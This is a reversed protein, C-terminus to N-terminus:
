IEIYPLLAQYLLELDSLSTKKGLSIRIFRNAEDVTKGIATITTAPIQQGIHCASGVSIALQQRNCELLLWQGQYKSSTMGIISPLQNTGEIQIANNHPSIMRIWNTRLMETKKYDEKMEKVSHAAATIFAAIGPINITGPRFGKQHTAFKYSSKWHISPDIYVAGVGQPGGVKHSSISLSSVHSNHVNIPTKGFSQVADCHFAISHKKLLSGIENINQTTGIEHNVHQIAVLITKDTLAQELDRLSILGNSQVPLYTIDFGEEELTAFAGLVSPHELKSTILHRGRHANGKAISRIALDNSESGGSTFYVGNPDGNLIDALEKRCKQLLDDAATGTDHLSSTNGPFATAAQIYTDLAEKRMPASAAYDLYIM